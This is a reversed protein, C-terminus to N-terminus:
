QRLGRTRRPAQWRLTRELPPWSGKRSDAEALKRGLARAANASRTRSSTVSEARRPVLDGGKRDSKLTLAQALLERDRDGRVSSSAPVAQRRLIARSVRWYRALLSPRDPGRFYATAGNQGYSSFVEICFFGRGPLGRFMGEELAARTSIRTRRCPRWAALRIACYAAAEFDLAEAAQDM